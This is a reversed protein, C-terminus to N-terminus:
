FIKMGNRKRNIGRYSGETQIYQNEVNKSNELLESNQEMKYSNKATMTKDNNDASLKRSPPIESFILIDDDNSSFYLKKLRMRNNVDSVPVTRKIKINKGTLLKRLLTRPIITGRSNNEMEVPCEGHKCLRDINLITRNVIMSSHHNPKQQKVLRRAVEIYCDSPVTCLYVPIKKETELAKDQDRLLITNILKVDSKLSSSIDRSELAMKLVEISLDDPLLAPLDKFRHNYILHSHVAKASEEIEKNLNRQRTYVRHLLAVMVELPSSYIYPNFCEVLNSYLRIELFAFYYKLRSAAVTIHLPYQGVRVYDLTDVVYEPAESNILYTFSFYDRNIVTPIKPLLNDLIIHISTVIIYPANTMIRNYFYRIIAYPDDRKNMDLKRSFLGAGSFKIDKIYQEVVKMSEEVQPSIERRPLFQVLLAILYFPVTKFKRIFRMIEVVNANFDRVLRKEYEDKLPEVIPETSVWSLHEPTMGFFIDVILPSNKYPQLIANLNVTKDIVANKWLSAACTLYEPLYRELYQFIKEFRDNSDLFNMNCLEPVISMMDVENFKITKWMLYLSTYLDTTLEMDHRHLIYGFVQILNDKFLAAMLIKVLSKEDSGPRFPSNVYIAVQPGYNLPDPVKLGGNFKTPDRDGYVLSVNFVEQCMSTNSM